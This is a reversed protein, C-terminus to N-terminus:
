EGNTTPLELKSLLTNELKKFAYSKRRPIDGIVHEHIFKFMAAHNSHYKLNFAFHVAILTILAKCGSPSECELVIEKDVVIFWQYSSPDRIDDEGTFCVLQPDNSPLTKLFDEPSSGQPIFSVLAPASSNFVKPMKELAASCRDDEDCDEDVFCKSIKRWREFFKEVQVNEKTLEESIHLELESWLIRENDLFPYKELIQDVVKTGSMAQIEDKRASFSLKQLSTVAAWNVPNKKQGKQLEKTLEQHLSNADKATVTDLVPHNVAKGPDKSKRSKLNTYRKKLLYEVSASYHFEEDEPWHPPKVDKLVPVKGCIFQSASKFQEKTVHDGCEAKLCTVCDRILQKRDEEELSKGEKCYQMVRKSVPFKFSELQISPKSLDQEAPSEQGRNQRELEMRHTRKLKPVSRSTSPQSQTPTARDSGSDSEVSMTDISSPSAALEENEREKFPSKLGSYQVRQLCGWLEKREKFTSKKGLLYPLDERTLNMFTDGDVKNEELVRCISESLGWRSKLSSVLQQCTVQRKRKKSPPTFGESLYGAVEEDASDMM